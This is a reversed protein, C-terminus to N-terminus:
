HLIAELQSPFQRFTDSLEIETDATDIGFFYHNYLLIRELESLQQMIAFIKKRAFTASDNQAFVGIEDPTYELPILIREAATIFAQITFTECKAISNSNLLIGEFVQKVVLMTKERNLTRYFVYNYVASFFRDYIIEINKLIDERINARTM